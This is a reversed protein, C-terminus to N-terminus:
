GWTTLCPNILEPYSALIKPHESKKTKLCKNKLLKYNIYGLWSIGISGFCVMLFMILFAIQKNAFRM